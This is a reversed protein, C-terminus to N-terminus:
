YCSFSSLPMHNPVHVFLYVLGRLCAYSLLNKKRGSPGQGKRESGAKNALLLPLYTHLYTPLAYSWHPSTPHPFSLVHSNPPFWVAEGSSRCIARPINAGGYLQGTLSPWDKKSGKRVTTVSANVWVYLCAGGKKTQGISTLTNHITPGQGQFLSIWYRTCRIVSRRGDLVNPLTPRTAYWRWYHCYRGSPTLCHTLSLSSNAEDHEVWKVEPKSSPFYSM